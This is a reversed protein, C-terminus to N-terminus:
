SYAPSSVTGTIETVSGAKITESAGPFGKQVIQAALDTDQARTGAVVLATKGSAFADAILQVRGFDRGPWNACTYPFKGATALEAVLTNICPGGVLVLDYGTKDASTVESDLKVVDATIPLVTETTVKGGAGGVSIVPNNGVAVLHYLQTDPYNITATGAATYDYTVLTGWETASKMVTTSETGVSLYATTGDTHTFIPTKLELRDDSTDDEVYFMVADQVDAKTKEEVVLVTPKVTNFLEILCNSGSATMNYKVQSGTPTADQDTGTCTITNEGTPFVVTTSNTVNVPTVFAVKAGYFTDITPFVYTKTDDSDRIAVTGSGFTVNYQQGDIVVTGWTASSNTVKWETGSFVDKFTAKQTAYSSGAEANTIRLMHPFTGSIFTYENLAAAENEKVHIIKNTSDRLVEGSGDGPTADYAWSVTGSKGYKDKFSVTYYNTAGPAITIDQSETAAPGNYAVKIGFLPDAWTTGAKIYDVAPSAIYADFSVKLDSMANPTTSLTVYTGKVDEENGATGKQIAYGNKFVYRDSGISIVVSGSKTPVEYYFIDSVYVSTGGFDYTHGATVQKQIGNVSLVANTSSIGVVQVTYTNSGVTIEKTEGATITEKGALGFLVLQTSDTESSITFTKGLISIEKGIANSANFQKTFSVWGQVLYSSSPNTGLEILYAPEKVNGTVDPQKYKITKGGVQLYQSYEYKTGSEDEVYGSTLLTPVDAATLITKVKNVNETLYIKTDATDLMVGGTVTAVAGPVTVESSTKAYSALNVAMNVAGAVDSTAASAGIVFLPFSVTSDTVGVLKNIDKLATVSTALVPAALSLGAMLASGTIAALKRFQM